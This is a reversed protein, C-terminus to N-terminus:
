AGPARRAMVTSSPPITAAPEGTATSTRTRTAGSGSQIAFYGAYDTGAGTGNILGDHNLDALAYSSPSGYASYRINEIPLGAATTVVVVDAHANQCYYIREEAATDAADYWNTDADRDRLVVLDIYSSGGLGNAGANHYVTRTKVHTNTDTDRYVAVPALPRRLLLLVM